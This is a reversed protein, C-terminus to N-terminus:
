RSGAPLVTSARLRTWRRTGLDFVPVRLRLSDGPGPSAVFWIIATERGGPPVTALHASHPRHLRFRSTAALVQWFWVPSARENGVEVVVLCGAPRSAVTDLRLRIGRASAGGEVEHITAAASVGNVRYDVLRWSGGVRRLTMPGEAEVPREDPDGDEPPRAVASFEAEARDGDVTATGVSKVRFVPPRADPPIKPEVVSWARTTRTLLGDVIAPDAPADSFFRRLLAEIEDGDGPRGGVAEM